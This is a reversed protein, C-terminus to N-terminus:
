VFSDLFIVYGLVINEKDDFRGYIYLIKSGDVGYYVEFMRIYNFSLYFVSLDLEM